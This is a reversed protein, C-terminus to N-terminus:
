YNNTGRGLDGRADEPPAQAGGCLNRRRWARLRHPRHSARIPRSQAQRSGRSRRASEQRNRRRESCGRGNALVFTFHRLPNRNENAVRPGSKLSQPPALKMRSTSASPTLHTALGPWGDPKHTTYLKLFLKEKSETSHLNSRCGLVFFSHDKLISSAPMHFRSARGSTKKHNTQTKASVRPALLLGGCLPARDCWGTRQQNILRRM